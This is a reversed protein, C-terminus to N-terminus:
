LPYLKIWKQRLTRNKLTHIYVAYNVLFAYIIVLKGISSEEFFFLLLSLILSFYFGNTIIDIIKSLKDKFIQYFSFTVVRRVRVRYLKKGEKTIGIFVKHESM